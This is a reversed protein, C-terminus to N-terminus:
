FEDDEPDTVVGLAPDYRVGAYVYGDEGIRWGARLVAKVPVPVRADTIPAPGGASVRAGEGTPELVVLICHGGDKVYCHWPALEAPLEGPYPRELVMGSLIRRVITQPSVVSGGSASPTFSRVPPAEVQLQRRAQKRVYPAPPLPTEQLAGNSIATWAGLLGRFMGHTSESPRDAQVPWSNPPLHVEEHFMLPGVTELVEPAAIGMRASVQVDSWWSAWTGGDHAVGWTAARIPIGNSLHMPPEEWVLFGAASPLLHDIAKDRLEVTSAVECAAADLYYLDGTALREREAEALARARDEVRPLAAVAPPMVFNIGQRMMQAWMPVANTRTFDLTPLWLEHTLEPPYERDSM